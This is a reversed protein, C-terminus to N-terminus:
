SITDREIGLDCRPKYSQYFLMFNATFAFDELFSKGSMRCELDILKIQDVKLNKRLSNRGNPLYTITFPM